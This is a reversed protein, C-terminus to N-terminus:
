GGGARATPADNPALTFNKLIFNDEDAPTFCEAKYTGPEDLKFDMSFTGPFPTAKPGGRPDAPATNEGVVKVLDKGQRIECRIRTEVPNKQQYGVALTLASGAKLEGSVNLSKFFETGQPADSFAVGCGTLFACLLALFLLPSPVRVHGM